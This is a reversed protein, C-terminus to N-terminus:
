SPNWELALWASTTSNAVLMVNAGATTGVTVTVSVHDPGVNWASIATIAAAAGGQFVAFNTVPSVLTLTPQGGMRQLLPIQIHASAGGSVGQGQGFITTASYVSDFRQYYRQCRALDDTLTLPAFDAAASGLVLMANDLYPTCTTDFRILVQAYNCGAPPTITVTLTEWAGGGSHYASYTLVSTGGGGGANADAYLRVRVANATAVKVRVSLTIPQGALYQPTELVQVLYGWDTVPVTSTFNATWCYRSKADASTSRTISGSFVASGGSVTAYWSDANFVSAGFPGM